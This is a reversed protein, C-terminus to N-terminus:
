RRLEDAFGLLDRALQAKDALSRMVTQTWFATVPYGEQGGSPRDRQDVVIGDLLDGYHQAIAASSPTLGFERMIKAAPGKLAQGGVLPSVALVPATTAELAARLAPLALIPDISLYPNSPCIVIAALAPSALHALAEPLATATEAGEFRFGTAEPACRERVFYHQFALPGSRTEVKTQVPDDTMPLIRAAIGLRQRLDNTITSLREGERLRRTREIHTALDRDGLSFWTEAGLQGLAAMCNWTEDVRGWGRVPDDLGSMAYMVSDLDPSIHLGLHDFDDATNVIVVLSEDPIVQGFGAALKAGGVGGSLLVIRANGDSPKSAPKTM